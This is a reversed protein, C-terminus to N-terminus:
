QRRKLGSVVSSVIADTNSPNIVLGSTSNQTPILATVNENLSVAARASTPISTTTLTSNATALQVIPYRTLLISANSGALKMNDLSVIKPPDKRLENAKNTGLSTSSGHLANIANMGSQFMELPSVGTLSIRKRDM